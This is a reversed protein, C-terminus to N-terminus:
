FKFISHPNIKQKKHFLNLLGITKGASNPININKMEVCSNRTHLGYFLKRIMEDESEVPKVDEMSVASVSVCSVDEVVMQWKLSTDIVEIEMYRFAYRRPLKLEAPLVDVHIFEEQIWGRSIWGDYDASDETMEKAIEGFKLRFFAPADQPSGVSNLKLTVYGVQHDGLDLCIKDGKALHYSSLNKIDDKKNVDPYVNETKVIDVISVPRVVTELLKPACAEAKAVFADNTVRVMNLDISVEAM